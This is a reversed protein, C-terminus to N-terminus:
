ALRWPTLMTRLLSRTAALLRDVQQSHHDGCLVWSCFHECNNTLVRYRREGLRSRARAVVETCDFCCPDRRIKLVRGQAFRDLSTEEVPGPWPGNALGAYHIVRGNGIYIGHHDYFTRPSIIHSALPPEEGTGLFSDQVSIGLDANRVEM